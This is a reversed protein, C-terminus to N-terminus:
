QSQEVMYKVTAELEKESCDSCMGKAPMANFGNVAHNVLTDMGKSIRDEWAAADGTVPAGAAGSAHCTSCFQDNIEQGSRAGGNGGNDAAALQTAGCEDGEVCVSGVPRIREETARDSFISREGLPYDNAMAAGSFLVTMTLVLIANKM